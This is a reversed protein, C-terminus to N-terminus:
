KKLAELRAELRNIKRFLKLTIEQEKEKVLAENSTDKPKRSERCEHATGDLNHPLWNGTDNCMKIEQKCFICDKVYSM